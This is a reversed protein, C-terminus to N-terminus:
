PNNHPKQDAESYNRKLKSPKRPEIKFPSKTPTQNKPPDSTPQHTKKNTQTKKKAAAPPHLSAQEAYPNAQSYDGVWPLYQKTKREIWPSVFGGKIQCQM